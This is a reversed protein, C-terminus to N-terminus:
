SETKGPTEGGNEEKEKKREQEPGEPMVGTGAFSFLQSLFWKFLLMTLVPIVCTRVILIAASKIYRRITNKFYTALDSISSIADKFADAIRDLISEDSDSEMMLDTIKSSSEDTEEITEEVFEMYGACVNDSVWTSAPVLFVVALALAMLKYGFNAARKGWGCKGARLALGALLLLCAIPILWRLAAGVGYTLLLKELYIATLIAVFYKNMSSLTDALPSGVDDPLLSIAVSTAVALATMKEVTEENEELSDMTKTFIGSDPVAVSLHFCSFCCVFILLAATLVEKRVHIGEWLKKLM